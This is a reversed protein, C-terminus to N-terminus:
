NFYAKGSFASNFTIEVINLSIYKVEGVVLSGASDVVSVSPYKELGHEIHWVSSASYQTYAFHKDGPAGGVTKLEDFNLLINEAKEKFRMKFETDENETFRMLLPKSM